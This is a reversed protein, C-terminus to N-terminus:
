RWVEIMWNCKSSAIVEIVFEGKTTFPNPPSFSVPISGKMVKYPSGELIPNNVSSFHVDLSFFADQPEAEWKVEFEIPENEPRELVFTPTITEGIGEFTTILTPSEVAPKESTQPEIAVEAGGCGILLSIFLFCLGLSLLRKRM